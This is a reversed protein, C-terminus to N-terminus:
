LIVIYQTYYLVTWYRDRLKVSCTESGSTGCPGILSIQPVAPVRCPSRWGCNLSGCRRWSRAWSGRDLVAPRSTWSWTWLLVHPSSLWLPAILSSCKCVCTLVVGHDLVNRLFIHWKLRNIDCLEENLLTESLPPNRQYLPATATVVTCSLFLFFYTVLKEPFFIIISKQCFLKEFMM